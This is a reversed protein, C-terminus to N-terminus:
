EANIFRFYNMRWEPNKEDKIIGKLLGISYFINRKNNQLDNEVLSSIYNKLLKEDKYSFDVAHEEKFLNSKNSLSKLYKYETYTAIGEQWIQFQLYTYDNPSLLNKIEAQDILFQRKKEKFNGKNLSEYMEIISHSYKKFLNNITTDNYPFEYDLMWSNSQDGIKHKLISIIESYQPNASQYLHFHEHLLMIIWDEDSKKTNKPNGVVICEEGNVAPFTAQLFSPFVKPRVYINTNLLPDYKLLTFNSDPCNHYFLYELSDTILLIRLPTKSINKWISDGYHDLIYSTTKILRIEKQIDANTSNHDTNECIKLGYFNLCISLLSIFITNM